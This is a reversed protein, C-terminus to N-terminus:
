VLLFSLSRHSVIGFAECYRRLRFLSQRLRNRRHKRPKDFFSDRMNPLHSLSYVAFPYRGLRATIAGFSRTSDAGSVAGAVPLSAIMALVTVILVRQAIARFLHRDSRHHAIQGCANKTATENTTM